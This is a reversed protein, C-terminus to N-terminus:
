VPNIKLKCVDSGSPLEGPARRNLSCQLCSNGDLTLGDASPESAGKSVSIKQESLLAIAPAPETNALLPASGPLAPPGRERSGWPGRLPASSSGCGRPHREASPNQEPNKQVRTARSNGVADLPCRVKQDERTEAARADATGGVDRKDKTKWGRPTVDGRGGPNHQEAKHSVKPVPMLM